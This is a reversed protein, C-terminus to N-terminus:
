LAHRRGLPPWPRWFVMALTRDELMLLHQAATRSVAPKSGVLSLSARSQAACMAAGGVLKARSDRSAHYRARRGFSSRLPSTRTASIPSLRVGSQMRIVQPLMVRIVHIDTLKDVFASFKTFDPEEIARQLDNIAGMTIAEIMDGIPLKKYSPVFDQVDSLLEKMEDLHYEALKWNRAEAALWLKAHDVQIRGM